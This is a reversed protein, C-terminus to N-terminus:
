MCEPVNQVFQGNVSLCVSMLVQQAADECSFVVKLILNIHYIRGEGEAGKVVARYANSVQLGRVWIGSGGLDRLIYHIYIYKVGLHSFM